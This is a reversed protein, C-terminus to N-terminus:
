STIPFASPEADLVHVLIRVREVTRQIDREWSVLRTFKEANTLRTLPCYV